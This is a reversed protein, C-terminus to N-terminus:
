FAAADQFTIKKIEKFFFYTFDYNRWPKTKAKM